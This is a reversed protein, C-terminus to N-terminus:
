LCCGERFICTNCQESFSPYFADEQISRAIAVVYNEVKELTKESSHMKVLELKNELIEVLIFSKPKEEMYRWFGWLKSQIMLNNYLDTAKVPEDYFNYIDIKSGVAVLDLNDEFILGPAIRLKIPMGAYVIQNEIVSPLHENYWNSLLTILGRTQVVVEYPKDKNEIIHSNVQREMYRIVAQWTPICHFENIYGHAYRITSSIIEEKLSLRREFSAGKMNKLKRPCKSFLYVDTPTIIM